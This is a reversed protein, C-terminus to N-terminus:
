FDFIGVVRLGRDLEPATHAAAGVVHTAAARGAVEGSPDLTEGFPRERAICVSSMARFHPEFVGMPPWKQRFLVEHLM